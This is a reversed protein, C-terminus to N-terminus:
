DCSSQTSPGFHEDWWATWRSRLSEFAADDLGYTTLIAQSSGQPWRDNPPRDMVLLLGDGWAEVSVGLQHRGRHWVAGVLSEGPVPTVAYREGVGGAGLGLAVAALPEGPHRPSGSFYLTRRVEGRHRDFAFALQQTFAIWGQTMDDFVDDWDTDAAPAPRVVRVICTAGRDEVEIRDGLGFRLVRAADDAEAHEAFIYEIEADLSDADWGFWERIAAPDRLARWVDDAPASVTVEVLPRDFPTSAAPETPTPM